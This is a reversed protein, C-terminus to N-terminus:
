DQSVPRLELARLYMLDEEGAVRPAICLTHHGPQAFSLTGLCTTQYIHWGESAEVHGALVEDAASVAYKRGAWAERASYVINVEFTGPSELELHWTVADEPATWKSIHFGGRRNYRKVARGATVAHVYDLRLTGDAQPHVRPPDVQPTGELHLVIVTGLEDLPAPPLDVLVERERRGVTLRHAPDALPYASRVTNRLGPVAIRGEQPWDLVHLYLTEGRVTCGGWPLSIFPSATTGYISEGNRDLWAGVQRLIEVSAAPIIGESTPGVNLLYNGGRSVIEVLRRVVERPSKWRTDFHSYGWTENLTQPTEWLEQVEGIPMENDGLDQYDGVLEQEYGGVRGNVLCRPQLEHVLDAFARAQEQTYIGRDFWVLGLPGYNTLLECLQPKSKTELYREFHPPEV